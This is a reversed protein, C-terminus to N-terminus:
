KPCAHAQTMKTKNQNRRNGFVLPAIAVGPYSGLVPCRSRRELVQPHLFLEKPMADCILPMRRPANAAPNVGSQM